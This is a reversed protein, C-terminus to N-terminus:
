GGERADAGALCAPLSERLSRPSLGLDAFTGVGEGVLGDQRMLYVLDRSLPPNPLLAFLAALAHWLPFPLPLSRRERRRHALVLALIERSRLTDPGGLEFLRRAPPPGTLLRSIARAVDVVHVPQLRTEGRGFLPAVPLRALRDLGSLLTDGPGFLAGPRLIVAKPYADLVAREGQALARAHPSRADPRAGLGSVHVLREIGESRALRALRGAGEAQTTADDPGSRLPRCGAANVVAGSGALAAALEADHRLDARLPEIPDGAEAWGPLAPRRAVLRVAHGAEVLERVIARGLFGTGGIITIPGAPM